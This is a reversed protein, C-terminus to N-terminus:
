YNTYNKTSWHLMPRSDDDDDVDDLKHLLFMSRARRLFYIYKQYYQTM